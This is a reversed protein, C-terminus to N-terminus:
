LEFYDSFRLQSAPEVVLLLELVVCVENTGIRVAAIVTQHIEQSPADVAVFQVIRRLQRTQRVPRAYAEKSVPAPATPFRFAAELAQDLLARVLRAVHPGLM